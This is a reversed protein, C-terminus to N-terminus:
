ASRELLGLRGGPLITFQQKYRRATRKVTEVDAGLEEAVVEPALSGRRLTQAMRQRIPVRDALESVGTVDVRRFETRVQGFRFEYAVAAPLPGLNRKRPFVGVSVDSSGPMPEAPKVFWTARAGNHWFSSGFPKHDGTDSKNVHAVHLSGIRLQRTSQFYRGAVEAAEPPGDCAFAISDFVAFDLGDHSVIRRLRDVEHVLPRECRAYRIEPMDEGFLRELRTRHDEAAMEWDFYGVRWGQQVLDGALQLGIYSKLGGGDGFLISPHLRPLQLGHCEIESPGIDKPVTRLDVSPEGKREAALTAQCFAELLPHWPIEGAKAQRGILQARETRARASSANFNACSLIGDIADTGALDIAVTLEGILENKFWQVRDLDFTAGIGSMTLRYHRGPEVIEFQRSGAETLTMRPVDSAM